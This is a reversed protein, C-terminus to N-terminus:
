PVANSCCGNRRVACFETILRETRLSRGLTHLHYWSDYFLSDPYVHDEPRGALTYGHEQMAHYVAASEVPKFVREALSTWSFVVQAGRADAKAILDDAVPWFSDDVYLTDFEAPDPEPIATPPEGLQNVLDGQVNFVRERYLPTTRGQRYAERLHDRVAQLHLVGLSAAIRPREYWPVYAFSAPRYDLVTALADDMKEPRRYNSHELAVIVVDGPGLEDVVENVIFRFGLVATLGMNAVPLCLAQELRESDIGYALNSGGILVVKPSGIARLRANKAVTSRMYESPAAPPGFLVAALLISLMLAAFLAARLLFAWPGRESASTSSRMSAICNFVFFYMCLLGGM